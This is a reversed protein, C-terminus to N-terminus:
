ASVEMAETLERWITELAPIRTKGSFKQVIARKMDSRKIVLWHTEVAEYSSKWGQSAYDRYRWAEIFPQDPNVSMPPKGAFHGILESGKYVGRIRM